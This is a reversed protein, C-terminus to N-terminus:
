ETGLERATVEDIAGVLDLAEFASSFRQLWFDLDAETIIKAALGRLFDEGNVAGLRVCVEPPAM